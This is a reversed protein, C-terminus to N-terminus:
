RAAVVIGVGNTLALFGLLPGAAVIQAAQWTVATGDLALANPIAFPAVTQGGANAVYAGHMVFGADVYRFCGPAVAANDAGLSAFVVVPAGGAGQVTFGFAANPILPLGNAYLVPAPAGCGAGITSVSVLGRPVPSAVVVALAGPGIRAQDLAVAGTVPAVDADFGFNYINNWNLPNTAPATFVLEAGVRSVIWQDLPDDNPDRFSVNTVSTAPNCPIRLTAAGRNNDLNHVAYEYRWTTPGVQAVKAAVYFHGDDGGNRAHNLTADAWKSLVTGPQFVAPNAFTWTTGNWTPVIERHGTNNLHLNGDEGAVVIHCCMWKRGAALLDQERLTVRNKVLDAAFAPATGSLSRVGDQNAPPGVDPEGRDFYSGVPAWVGTWPDIESAPALYNRNANTTAGYTDTCNVRLGTGTTQCTGGCTSATNAAGFAHKVYTTADNTIQEFRGNSERVVMMAFMPHNPNMPATWQIPVIGPNCMTYSYSMGIEGNPHAAGRRGFYTPSANNTLSGDLGPIVNAQASLPACSLAAATVLIHNRMTHSM